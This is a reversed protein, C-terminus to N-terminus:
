KIKALTDGIGTVVPTVFNSIEQATTPIYRTISVSIIIGLVGILIFGVMGYVINRVPIFEEKKVLGCEMKDFREGLEDRLGNVAEIIDKYSLNSM